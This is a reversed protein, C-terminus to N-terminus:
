DGIEQGKRHRIVVVSPRPPRDNKFDPWRTSPEDFSSPEDPQNEGPHQVAVFLTRNDPTFCAGAMEAGRPCAFFFRTLARGPGEADCVRLGDPIGQRAQAQGQDTSIWLRGKQDFAINDPCALWGNKTVAPHYVADHEKVNPDGARLFVNWTFETTAHDTEEGSGPPVIEIIHGYRSFPRPNAPNTQNPQRGWNNTLMVYVKGTVPSPEIDEPRDMPTAGLLDAARRAEIVVDAQSDFGHTPTLPGLGWVLPLWRGTGDDNFKAVFLTGEDLLHANHAPDDPDHSQDSVFKYVYEFAQDDGSYVVARGDRNLVVSAGEHRFRGLATRKIPTSRPDYPDYEVVWGFRNPENPERDMNFRDHYRGWGYEATGLGYRAYANAEHTRQIDGIFYKNFNEEAILVTGWPTVGGACNNLTGIVRTGTPDANTQLRRHGAAPGRIEMHTLAPTIRRNYDSDKVYEWESGDRRVEVVSHGHARMDIEVQQESLNLAGPSKSIMLSPNTYEHNVCLLGHDSNESGRPLPMFALYDNNYGFQREQAAATQAHADFKPADRFLRDGWRLLVQTRYDDSVRHTAKIVNEIEEFGLSSKDVVCMDGAFAEPAPLAPPLMATALFGQLM